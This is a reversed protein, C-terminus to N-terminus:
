DLGKGGRWRLKFMSVRAGHCHNARLGGCRMKRQQLEKSVYIKNEPLLLLSHSSWMGLSTRGQLNLECYTTQFSTLVDSFLVVMELKNAARPDM